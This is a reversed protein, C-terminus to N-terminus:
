GAYHELAVGAEELLLLSFDDPYAHRYVVRCIGANIILKACISCPQHSVYLTAGELSLGLKAAQV